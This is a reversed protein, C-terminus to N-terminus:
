ELTQGGDCNFIFILLLVVFVCVSFAVVVVFFFVVSLHHKKQEMNGMRIKTPKKITLSVDQGTMSYWQPSTM